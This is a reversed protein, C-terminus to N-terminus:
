ALPLLNLDANRHMGESVHKGHQGVASHSGGQRKSGGNLLEYRYGSVSNPHVVECADIPICAM